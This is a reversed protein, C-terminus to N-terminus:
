PTGLTGSRSSLFIQCRRSPSKVLRPTERCASSLTRRFQISDFRESGTMIDTLVILQTGMQALGRDLLLREAEAITHEPDLDFKM